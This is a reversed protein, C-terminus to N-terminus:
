GSPDVGPSSGAFGNATVPSVMTQPRSVVRSWGCGACHVNVTSSGGPPVTRNSSVTFSPDVTATYAAM